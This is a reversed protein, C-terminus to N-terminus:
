GFENLIKQMESSKIKEAFNRVNQLVDVKIALQHLLAYELLAIPARDQPVRNRSNKLGNIRNENCFFELLSSIAHSSFQAKINQEGIESSQQVLVEGRRSKQFLGWVKMYDNKDLFVDVADQFSKESSFVQPEKNLPLKKQKHNIRCENEKPKEIPPCSGERLMKALSEGNCPIEPAFRGKNEIRHKL